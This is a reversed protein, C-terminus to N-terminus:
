KAGYILGNNVCRAICVSQTILFFFLHKINRMKATQLNELNAKLKIKERGFQKNAEHM